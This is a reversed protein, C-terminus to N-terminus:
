VTWWRPVVDIKTFTNDYTFTNTGSALKPLDSGLDIYKNLGVPENNVYKYCEGIECDIYTPNGLMSVTSVAAAKTIISTGEYAEYHNTANLEGISARITGSTANYVIKAILTITSVQTVGNYVYTVKFKTTFNQTDTTGATFTAIVNKVAMEVDLSGSFLTRISPTGSSPDTDVTVSQVSSVNFSDPTASADFDAKVSITDGVNLLGTNFTIRDTNEGLTVDGLTGNALSITYDNFTIDGYGKAEILPGCGFLTPNVIMNPDTGYEVTVTGEDNWIYNVTHALTPAEATFTVAAPTKKKYILHMGSVAYKFDDVDNYGDDRVYVKDQKRAISNNEMYNLGTWPSTTSQKYGDSYLGSVCMITNTAEEMDSLTAGFVRVSDQNYDVTFTLSGMDVMGYDSTGTGDLLGFTGGYVDQGLDTDLDEGYAIYDVVTNTFTLMIDSLTDVVTVGAADFYFGVAYATPYVNYNFSLVKGVRDDSIYWGSDATNQSDWYLKQGNENFVIWNVRTNQVTKDFSIAIKDRGYLRLKPLAVKTASEMLTGDGQRYCYGNLLKDPDCLNPSVHTNLEDTKRVECFTGFREVSGVPMPVTRTDVWEETGWNDCIFPTNYSDATLDTPTALKGYILSGSPSDNVDTICYIVNTASPSTYDYLGISQTDVGLAAINSYNNDKIYLYKSSLWPNKNDLTYNPVYNAPLTSSWLKHSSGTLRLQWTLSSMDSVYDFNHKGQGDAPYM